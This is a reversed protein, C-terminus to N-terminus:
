LNWTLSLGAFYNRPLGPYYYRPANGGFSGANVQIMSAYKEDLVNNLGGYVQCTFDGLVKTYNLKLNLVQYADTYVSNDDRIPMEGVAQLDAVASFGAPLRANLRYNLLFSPVGTVENGRYDNGNDVFDLFEAKMWTTMLQHQLGWSAKDVITHRIQSEVGMYRAGGANVEIEADNADRQLVLLNDTNMLYATASFDLKQEVMQAKVGMEYNYGVEPLINANIQGDPMLTEEVSPLSFGHAVQAYVSWDSGIFKTLSLRPSFVPDFTYEGSLDGSQQLQDEIEYFSYNGNLGAEIRWTPALSWQANAFVNGYYRKQNLARFLEGKASNANVYNEVDFRESFWETGVALLLRKDLYHGNVVARVGYNIADIEEIGISGIPTVEKSAAQNVFVSLSSSYKKGWDSKLNIGVRLRNNDENGEANGWNFAAKEPHHLYDDENLSSPIQAQLSVYNIYYNLQHRKSVDVHGLLSANRRDYNNNERYGDSKVQQFSALAASQENSYSGKLQYQQLGFSGVMLSANAQSDLRKWDPLVHIAGGLGAGYVTSVPGRYVEVGRLTAFDLDELSTEGEGTSLPIDALYAKVRNTSFPSRAGIGRITIRNTNLAGSQMYVGPVSNIVPALQIGDQVQLDEPSLSTVAGAYDQIDSQFVSTTIVVESLQQATTDSALNTQGYGSWSVALWAILLSPTFKRMMSYVSMFVSSSLNGDDETNVLVM